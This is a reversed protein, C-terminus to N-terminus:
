GDKKPGSAGGANGMGGSLGIDMLSSFLKMGADGLPSLSRFMKEMQELNTQGSMTDMVAQIYHDHIPKMDPLGLFSRAEEPTCEVDVHFKM